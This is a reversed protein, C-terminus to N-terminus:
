FGGYVIFCIQGTTNDQLGQTASNTITITFDTTARTTLGATLGGYYNLAIVQYNTSALASTFTVKYTGTWTKSVSACNVSGTELSPTTGSFTITGRARVSSDGSWLWM